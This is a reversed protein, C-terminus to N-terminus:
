AKPKAVVENKAGEILDIQGLVWAKAEELSDTQKIIFSEKGVTASVRYCNKRVYQPHFSSIQDRQIFVTEGGEYEYIIFKSMM